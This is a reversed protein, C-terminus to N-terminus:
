DKYFSTLDPLHNLRLTHLLPFIILNSEERIEFSVIEKVLACSEIKLRQLQNLGKLASLSFIYTLSDCRTITLLSLFQLSVYGFSGKNWWLQDLESLGCLVLEKLPPFNVSKASTEDVPCEFEFIDKVTDCNIISLSEFNNLRHVMNFPIVKSIANCRTIRLIKLRGFSEEPVQLHWISKM